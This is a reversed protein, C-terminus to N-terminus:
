CAEGSGPIQKNKVYDLASRHMVARIRALREKAKHVAAVRREVNAEAYLARPTCIKEFCAHCGEWKFFLGMSELTVVGLKLVPMFSQSGFAVADGDQWTHVCSARDARPNLYVAVTKVPTPYPIGRAPDTEPRLERM